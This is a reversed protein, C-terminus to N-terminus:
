DCNPKAFRAAFLTDAHQPYGTLNEMKEPQLNFSDRLFAAMEENEKKFVSCTCYVLTAGPALHTAINALIKRQMTQYRGIKKPDFFFLDEPTRGWTGSGTCPVDALVLHVVPLNVIDDRSLDALFSQYKKIGAAQFRARLNVLISERIDSVTIDMEPYCDHALISKGGSAACADWFSHPPESGPDAASAATAPGHAAAASPRLFEAVRQSSYDQVVIERDPTFHDEVKFGNALRVTAPPIFGAADGLKERVTAEQGPRIRLFLDPQRLFSLCFAEHDIASSLEDRWPFINAPEIDTAALKEALPKAINENYGANFYGLFEGPQDTCLFLGTLIRDKVSLHNAAHGLRYFGYVLTSLQKRDRSGMQKNVRFFDKLWAHLPAEGKYTDIIDAAIRLQNDFKM